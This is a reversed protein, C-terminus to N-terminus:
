LQDWRPQSYITTILPQPPAPPPGPLNPLSVTGTLYSLCAGTNEQVTPRSCIMTISQTNWFLWFFPNHTNEGCLFSLHPSLRAQGSKFMVCHTCTALMVHYGMLLQPWSLFFFSVHKVDPVLVVWKYVHVCVCLNLWCYRCKPHSMREINKKMWFMSWQTM